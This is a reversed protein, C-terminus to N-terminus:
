VGCMGECENNFMNIQGYDEATRLDAEALPKCSRHLYLKTTGKDSSYLGPRIMDDVRIAEKWGEPDTDRLLRWEKDAKYPCYVCASRPPRPYGHREMWTLCDDRTFRMEVLPFYNFIWKLEHPKMRLSEDLSIGIAQMVSVEQPARERPLLGYLRRIEKTIRDIKFDKTCQRRLMGGGETFFPPNPSANEGKAAGELRKTLGDKHMVRSVPFPLKTELWDLWDYVAKPEAGTDAFIAYDAADIEGTAMMLAVTSSQVGAGLSLVKMM